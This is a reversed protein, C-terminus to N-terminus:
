NRLPKGTELTHEIRDLTPGTRILRMFASRELALMQKETVVDMLDAEGGQIDVHLLDIREHGEALEALRFLRM